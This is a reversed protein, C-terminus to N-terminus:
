LTMASKISSALMTSSAVRENIQSAVKYIEGIEAGGYNMNDLPFWVFFVDLFPHTFSCKKPFRRVRPSRNMVAKFLIDVTSM